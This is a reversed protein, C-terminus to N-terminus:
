RSEETERVEKPSRMYEILLLISLGVCLGFTGGFLVMKKVPAQEEILNCYETNLVATKGAEKVLYENAKLTLLNSVNVITDKNKAKTKIEFRRNSREIWYYETDMALNKLDDDRILQQYVAEALNEEYSYFDVTGNERNVAEISYGCILNWTSSENVALFIGIMGLFALLVPLWFHKILNQLVKVLDIERM